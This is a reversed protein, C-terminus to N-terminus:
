NRNLVITYLIVCVHIHIHIHILSMFPSKPEIGTLIRVGSKTNSDGEGRLVFNYPHYIERRSIHHIQLGEYM